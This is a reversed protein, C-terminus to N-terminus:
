SENPIVGKCAYYSEIIPLVSVRTHQDEPPNAARQKKAELQENLKILDDAVANKYWSGGLSNYIARSEEIHKEAEAVTMHNTIPKLYNM